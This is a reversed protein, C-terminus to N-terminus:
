QHLAAVRDDGLVVIFDAEYKTGYPNATTVHDGYVAELLKLTAPKSTGSANIIYTSRAPDRSDAIASVSVNRGELMTENKAALGYEETGNLLVVDASEKAVPNNSTLRRLAQKIDSFNDLGAAPVLASQGLPTRYSALYNKGNLDNLGYSKIQGSDIKKTLDYLRHVESLTMDSKVNNGLSDSLKTLKLPNILTSTSTAKDKLAILLKRQNETRLFDSEGYGYSGYADGRARALDLAQEGNLHHRGNSLKVLPGHTKWDISPDYLGRPDSSHITIDVGGVANVSQRLASYDILAYYQTRIGLNQYITQELLGMGGNPYGSASFHKQQGTVYAENIKKHGYSGVNVYLDRPVSLLFARNNHTDLSMIMISDTLEAGNHGADDASNGALLINVRGENEGKLRTTSFIGFINGDFIKVANIAFKIGLWLGLLIFPLLILLAIRKKTWRWRRHRPQNDHGLQRRRRKHRRGSQPLTPSQAPRYAATPQSAQIPSHGIAPRYPSMTMGVDPFRQRPPAQGLPRGTPIFNDIAQRRPRKSHQM